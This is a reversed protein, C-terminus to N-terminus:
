IYAKKPKKEVEAHRRAAKRQHATRISYVDELDEKEQRRQKTVARHSYDPEQEEQRKPKKPEKAAKEAEERETTLRNIEAEMADEGAPRFRTVKRLNTATINHMPKDEAHEKVIARATMAFRMDKPGDVLELIAQPANDYPRPECRLVRTYGGPRNQYRRRLPGFLTDM